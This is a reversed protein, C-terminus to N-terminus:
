KGTLKRKAKTKKKEESTGKLIYTKLETLENKWMQPPHTSEVNALEVEKDQFRKKLEDVRKKTQSSMKMDTLYDYNVPDGVLRRLGFEELEKDVVEDDKNRLDIKDDLIGQIFKVRDELINKDELCDCDLDKRKM